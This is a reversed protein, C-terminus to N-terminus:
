KVLKLIGWNKANQYSNDSLDNFKAIGQRFGFANSDNVQADFGMTKGTKAEKILPIALEIRYGGDTLQNASVFGKTNPIQGFSEEGAFSVRYQGDNEDLSSSKDNNQDLFIEISDQEYKNNSKNDLVSDKVEFLAYVHKNDWLLKVTGTAGEWATLQNNVKAEPCSNWIEDVEGDIKPTGYKAEITQTTKKKASNGSSTDYLKLFKDPDLVAYAAMKPTYDAHFLCPCSEKRWSKSDIYGWFTVRSIIDKYKKFLQFLKAYVIGQKIEMDKTLRYYAGTVTVDLESFSIEVNLKSFKKLSREVSAPDTGISYHGQMGIGDIPVGQAKLDKVMAYVIDAKNPDNLNYDNYYLKANPDAEHAFKFAMALYDPGISSYWQTQRLCQKWDGNSPLIVGDNIAENVVDWSILQGKYHTMINTIHSKMQAIAKKRSVDIGLWDGSQSHWVLTHGHAKLNNEKAFQIMNDADTYTFEGEFRQMNEPKMMNEPTIANFQKLTLEKDEGNRNSDTYITGLLFDDKYAQYLSFDKPWEGDMADAQSTPAVTATPATTVNEVKAKENKTGDAEVNSTGCAPLVLTIVLCLAILRLLHGLFRNNKGMIEEEGLYIRIDLQM